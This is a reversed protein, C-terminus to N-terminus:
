AVEPDDPKQRTGSRTELLAVVASRPIRVLNNIKIADLTGKKVWRHVTKKSVRLYEAVEDPRLLKKDPLDRVVSM